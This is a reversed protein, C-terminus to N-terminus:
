KQGIKRHKNKKGMTKLFMKVIGNNAPFVLCISASATGVYTGIVTIFSFLSVGSAAGSLVLLTKDAFDLETIYKNLAKSM